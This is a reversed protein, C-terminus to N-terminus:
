AAIHAIHRHLSTHALSQDVHGVFDGEGKDKMGEAGVANYMLLVPGLVVLRQLEEIGSLFKRFLDKKALM